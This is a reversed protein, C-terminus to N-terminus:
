GRVRIRVAGGSRGCACRASAMLAGERLVQWQGWVRCESGRLRCSGSGAKGVGAPEDLPLLLLAPAIAPATMPEMTATTNIPTAM